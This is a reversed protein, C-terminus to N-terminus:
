QGRKAMDIATDIADELDSTYYATEEKHPAELFNVRYEGDTLRITIGFPKLLAKAGFITQATPYKPELKLENRIKDMAKRLRLSEKMDTRIYDKVTEYAIRKTMRPEEIM